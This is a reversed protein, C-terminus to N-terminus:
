AATLAEEAAQKVAAASKAQKEADRAAIFADRAAKGVRGAKGVEIGNEVAWTRVQHDSPGSRRTRKKAVKKAAKKAPAKGTTTVTTKAATKKAPKRAGGIPRAVNTFPELVRHLRALNKEGLDIEYSKGEVSFTLTKVSPTKEDLDDVTVEIQKKM